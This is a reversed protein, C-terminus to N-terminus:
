VVARAAALASAIFENADGGAELTSATLVAGTWGSTRWFGGGALAPVQKTTLPSPTVYVYPEAYYDDGPSLGVGIQRTEDGPDLYIIAGLDFHHPWILIETSRTDAVATKVLELGFDYWRALEALEPEYGVFRGGSALLSPPLDYDRMRVGRPPGFRADAWAMAEALTKGALAFTELTDDIWVAVAFDVARIGITVETASVGGIM